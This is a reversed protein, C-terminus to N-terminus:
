AMNKITYDFYCYKTSAYLNILLKQTLFYCTYKFNLHFTPDVSYIESVM